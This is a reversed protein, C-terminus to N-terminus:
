TDSQTMNNLVKCFCFMDKNITIFYNMTYEIHTQNVVLRPTLVVPFFMIIFFVILRISKPTNNSDYVYLTIM